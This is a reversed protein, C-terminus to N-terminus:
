GSSTGTEAFLAVLVQEPLQPEDDGACWLLPPCLPGDGQAPPTISNLAALLTPPDYRGEVARALAVAARDAWREAETLSINSASICALLPFERGARDVSPGIVALRAGDPVELLARLGGPPWADPTRAAHALSQTLWHDLWDAIAPSLGRSVFDGAVPLKGFFGAQPQPRTDDAM